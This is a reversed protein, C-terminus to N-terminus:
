IELPLPARNTDKIAQFCKQCIRKEKFFFVGDSEGCFICSPVYKKLVIRDGDIFIEVADKSKLELEERISIPLVVRGLEDIKRTIGTSKM